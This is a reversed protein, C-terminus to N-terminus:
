LGSVIKWVGDAKRFRMEHVDSERKPVAGSPTVVRYYGDYFVEARAQLDRVDIKKVTLEFRMSDVKDLDAALAKELAERDMDDEPGPTGAQDYYDAAVLALVAAADKKQLAEGYSRIVDLVARTDPSDLIETGPILRPPCGALAVLLVPALLRRRM